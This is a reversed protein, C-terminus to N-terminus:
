EAWELYADADEKGTFKPITLKVRAINDRDDRHHHGHHHEREERGARRQRDRRRGYLGDNAFPNENDDFGEDEFDDFGENEFHVRRGDARRGGRQDDFDARRRGGRGGRDDGFRDFGHGFGSNEDGYEERRREEHRRHHGRGGAVPLREDFMRGMAEMLSDAKRRM